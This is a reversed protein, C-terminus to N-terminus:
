TLKVLFFIFSCINERAIEYNVIDTYEVESNDFSNSLSSLDFSLM